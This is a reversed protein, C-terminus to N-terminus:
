PVNLIQVEHVNVTFPSQRVENFTGADGLVDARWQVTWTSTATGGHKSATKYLHGCDPSPTKGQEATYHTGPGACTVTTGDGMAWAISTVTATATVTVGGATASATNPGFTTPSRDVWLWIPMGVVYTGAARPSAVAPGVLKMADVAQRALLEPDISPAIPAQGDAIWVMYAGDRGPCHVGYVAGKEGTYQHGQWAANDPPPQPHLRTYTCKPGSDGGGGSGTGGPSTSSGGPLTSGEQACVQVFMDAGECVGGGPGDAYAVPVLTGALLLAATAARRLM